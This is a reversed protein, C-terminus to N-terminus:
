SAAGEAAAGGETTSERRKRDREEQRRELEELYDADVTDSLHDFDDFSKPRYESGAQSM